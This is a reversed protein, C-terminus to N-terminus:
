MNTNKTNSNLLIIWKHNRLILKQEGEYDEDTCDMAKQLAIRFVTNIKMTFDSIGALQKLFTCFQDVNRLTM